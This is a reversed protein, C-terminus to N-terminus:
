RNAKLFNILGNTSADHSAIEARTALEPLIRSALQKGLEVGWQDFANIDWVVSQVFVKHEYLAILMGLSRPELKRILISTSPRNGPFVRHPLLERIRDAPLEQARMAEEAGAASLGLMLAETQAFFNALLMTHHENLAYHSRCCAIFDAPILQTGQHLLQFFAHQGDTGPSGWIVPATAYDVASGGRTTRKGNSEMELQQLYDPLLRLSQDYPLVAHSAAGFFNVYWIGILGLIVPMNRELPATRFHEDMDHAGALMERFREMGVSLAVPLGIASWLSYRGGVWDWFEFVHEAGIGFDRAAAANATVAAFHRLTAKADGSKALLWDRASHANALTELTTFTKSSVIFLTTEPDLPALTGALHASDVNSVFHFRLHPAAYPALAETALAPGLSSGGIGINVIDTFAHGSFGTLRGNRVGDCFREMKELTRRVEDIVNKGDVVVEDGARLATHLAARNETTNIKEGTFMREIWSPLRCQRALEVLLRLTEDTALNKSYDLLMNGCRLSFKDFRAPDKEFLERLVFGAATRHHDRLAQWAPLRTLTTTTM